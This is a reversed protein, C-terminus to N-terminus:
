VCERTFVVALRQRFNVGDNSINVRHSIVEEVEAEEVFRPLAPEHCVVTSHVTRNKEQISLLSSEYMLSM